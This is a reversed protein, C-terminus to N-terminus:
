VASGKLTVVTTTEVKPIDSGSTCFYSCCTPMEISKDDSLASGPSPYLQRCLDAGHMETKREIGPLTSTNRAPSAVNLVTSELNPSDFGVDVLLRRNPTAIIDPHASTPTVM